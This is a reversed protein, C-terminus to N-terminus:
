GTRTVTWPCEQVDEATRRRGVRIVLCERAYEDIVTLM